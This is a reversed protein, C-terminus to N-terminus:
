YFRCVIESIQATGFNQPSRGISPPTYLFCPLIEVEEALTPFLWDYWEKTGERYWDAWSIGTRLHKIGLKKLDHLTTKVEEYEGPRFWELIGFVPTSLTKDKKM